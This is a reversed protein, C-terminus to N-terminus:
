LHCIVKYLTITEYDKNDEGTLDTHGTRDRDFVSDVTLPSPFVTQSHDSESRIIHLTMASIVSILLIASIELIFAGVSLGIPKPKLNIGTM